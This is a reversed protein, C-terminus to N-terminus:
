QEALRTQAEQVAAPAARLQQEAQQRRQAHGELRAELTQRRSDLQTQDARLRACEAFRLKWGGLQGALLAHGAAEKLRQELAISRDELATLAAHSQSRQPQSDWNGTWLGQRRSEEQGAQEAQLRQLAA